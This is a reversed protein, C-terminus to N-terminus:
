AQYRWINKIQPLLVDVDWHKRSNKKSNPDNVIVKGGADIGALVIFHGSTTFDGPYMSCIFPKGERLGDLIVDSNLSVEEAQLGLRQAGSTMLAWATGQGPVYYGEKESFQAVVRPNWKTEGTLGCVVMSLCTPGCGTVAHFDSGYKDYGWREDWQLFLPIKGKEVEGSLDIEVEKDKNKPYNLVFRRTEPNKEQLEVLSEPIESELLRIERYHKVGALVALLMLFLFLLRLRRHRKIKHRKTKHRKAPKRRNVFDDEYYYYTRGRRTAM